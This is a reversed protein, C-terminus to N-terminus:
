GLGRADPARLEQQSAHGMGATRAAGRGSGLEYLFELRGAAMALLVFDEVPGGKGASFFILGDPSLPKFEADVRLEYHINTLPPYSIFADHGNFFPTTVMVGTPM